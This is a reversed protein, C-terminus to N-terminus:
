VIQNVQREVWDSETVVYVDESFDLAFLGIFSKADVKVSGDLSHLFVPEEVECAIQQLKQIDSISHFHKKIMM